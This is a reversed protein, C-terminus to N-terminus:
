ARPPPLEPAIAPGVPTADSVADVVPSTGAPVSTSPIGTLLAVACSPMTSCVGPVMAECPSRSAPAECDPCGPEHAETAVHEATGAAVGGVRQAGAGGLLLQVLLLNLLLPILRRLRPM